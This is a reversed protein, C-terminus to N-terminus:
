LVFVATAALLAGLGIASIGHQRVAASKAGFPGSGANAAGVASPSDSQTPASPPAAPPPDQAAAKQSTPLCSADDSKQVEVAKTWGEEGNADLASFTLKTGPKFNVKWTVQPDAHDGLDALPEGCPDSPKVVVLNYPGKTKAWKLTVDQCQVVKAPTDFHFEDALVGQAALSTLLTVTLFTAFM